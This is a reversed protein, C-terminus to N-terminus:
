KSIVFLMAKHALRQIRRKPRLVLFTAIANYCAQPINARVGEFYRNTIRAQKAFLPKWHASVYGWYQNMGTEVLNLKQLHSTHQKVPNYRRKLLMSLDSVFERALGANNQRCRFYSSRTLSPSFGHQAITIFQEESFAVGNLNIPYERVLDILPQGLYPINPLGNPCYVPVGLMNAEMCLNTLSDFSLLLDARRILKYLLGKTIPNHRDIISIEADKFLNRSFFPLLGVRGKGQYCLVNLRRGKLRPQILSKRHDMIPKSEGELHAEAILEELIRLKPQIFLSPCETSIISSYVYEPEGYIRPNFILGFDAFSGPVALNWWVIVSGSARIKKLDSNNVTDPVITVTDKDPLEKTVRCTSFDQPLSSRTNENDWTAYLWCDHVRHDSDILRALEGIAAIGNSRNATEINPIVICVKM